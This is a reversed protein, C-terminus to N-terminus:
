ALGYSPQGASPSDLSMGACGVGHHISLGSVFVLSGSGSGPSSDRAHGRHVRSSCCPMAGIRCRLILPSFRAHITVQHCGSPSQSRSRSSRQRSKQQPPGPSALCRSAATHRQSLRQCSAWFQARQAHLCGQLMVLTAVSHHARQNRPVSRGRITALGTRWPMELSNCSSSFFGVQINM